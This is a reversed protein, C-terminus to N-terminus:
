ITHSGINQCILSLTLESSQQCLKIAMIVYMSIYFRKKLLHSFYKLHLFTSFTPQNVEERMKKEERRKGSEVRMWVTIKEERQRFCGGKSFQADPNEM